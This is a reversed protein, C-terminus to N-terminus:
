GYKKNGNMLKQYIKEIDDDTVKNFDILSDEELSLSALSEKIAKLLKKKRELEEM